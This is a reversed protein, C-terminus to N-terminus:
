AATYTMGRRQGKTKVKKKAILFKMPKRMTGVDTNLAAAIQEGRQGPNKKVHELLSDAMAEVQEPTRRGARGGSRKAKGLRVVTVSRTRPASSGTDMSGLAAHVQELATRRVLLALQGAFSDVLAQIETNTNANRAM